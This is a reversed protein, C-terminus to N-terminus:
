SLLARQELEEEKNERVVDREKKTVATRSAESTQKMKRSSESGVEEKERAMSSSCSEVSM